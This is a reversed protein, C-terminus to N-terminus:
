APQLERVHAVDQRSVPRVQPALLSAVAITQGTLTMFEVEYGQGNNHIHVVTGVDGATLGEEPVDETLVVIDHEKIMARGGFSLGYHASACDTRRRNALGTRIRPQRGDPANLEGDIEYRPGWRTQRVVSIEHRQAHERLAEAFVEWEDMQFGFELFFRAKSAGYRHRLNLLYQDIKERDVIAIHANPLRM